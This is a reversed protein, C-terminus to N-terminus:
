KASPKKAEHPRFIRNSRLHAIRVPSTKPHIMEHKLRPKLMKLYIVPLKMYNILISAQM